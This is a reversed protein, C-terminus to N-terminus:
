SQGHRDGLRNAHHLPSTMETSYVDDERDGGERFCRPLRYALLERFRTVFAWYFVVNIGSNIVQLLGGLTALVDWYVHGDCTDSLEFLSVMEAIVGFPYAVFSSLAVCLVTLTLRRFRIDASDGSRDENEHLEHSERFKRRTTCILHVSFLLLLASPLLYGFSEHTVILARNHSDRAGGSAYVGRVVEVTEILLCWSFLGLCAQVIHRKTLFRHVRFPKCVALWRSVAVLLTTHVSLIHTFNRSHNVVVQYWRCCPIDLMLVFIFNLALYFSDCLALYKFLLPTANYSTEAQWIWFSAMNGLIGLLALPLIGSQAMIIGINEDKSCNADQATLNDWLSSTYNTHSVIDFNTTIASSTM